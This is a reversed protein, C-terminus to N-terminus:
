HLSDLDLAFKGNATPAAAGAHFGIASFTLPALTQALLESVWLWSGFAIVGHSGSNIDSDTIFCVATMVATLCSSAREFDRM